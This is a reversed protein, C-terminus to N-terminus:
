TLDISFIAEADGHLSKHVLSCASSWRSAMYYNMSMQITIAENDM